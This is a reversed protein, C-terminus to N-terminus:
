EVSFGLFLFLAFVLGAFAFWAVGVFAFLFTSHADHVVPLFRTATNKNTTTTPQAETKTKTEKRKRQPILDYQEAGRIWPAQWLDAESATILM